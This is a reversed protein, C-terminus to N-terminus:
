KIKFTNKGSIKVLSLHLHIRPKEYKTNGNSLVAMLGMMRKKNLDLKRWAKCVKHGNRSFFNEPENQLFLICSTGTFVPRFLPVVFGPWFCLNFTIWEHFLAGLVNHTNSANKILHFRSISPKSFRTFAQTGTPFGRLVGGVYLTDDCPYSMSGAPLM